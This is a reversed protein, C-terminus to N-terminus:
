LVVQVTEKVIVLNGEAFPSARFQLVSLDPDQAARRAAYLRQRATELNPEVSCLVGIPEALAQYLLAQLAPDFKTM